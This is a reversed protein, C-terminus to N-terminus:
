LVYDRAGRKLTEIAFEEGIAGSVFLFPVDPCRERALELASLGDFDPLSYDALILDTPGAELARVFSARGDARRVDARVGGRTLTAVTLDADLPSDELLVVALPRNSSADM